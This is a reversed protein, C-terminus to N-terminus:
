CPENAIELEFIDDFEITKGCLKINRYVEDVKEVRGAITVYRDARYYTVRVSDGTRLRNITECLVLAADELLERRPSLVVRKEEIMEELGRLAAFPAFQAARPQRPQKM